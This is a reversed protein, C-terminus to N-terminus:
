EAQSDAHVDIPAAHLVISVIHDGSPQRNVKASYVQRSGNLSFERGVCGSAFSQNFTHTGPQSRFRKINLRNAQLYEQIESLPVGADRKHMNLDECLRTLIEPWALATWEVHKNYEQQESAAAMIDKISSLHEDLREQVSTLTKKVDVVDNQIDAMDNLITDLGTTM